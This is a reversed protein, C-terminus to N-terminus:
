LTELVPKYSTGIKQFTLHISHNAFGFPNVLMVFTGLSPPEQCLEQDLNPSTVNCM